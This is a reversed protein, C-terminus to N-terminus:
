GVEIRLTRPSRARALTRTYYAASKPSRASTRAHAILLAVIDADAWGAEAALTALRFDYGSQSHDRPAWERRWLQAFLRSTACLRALGAAPPSAAPDVVAVDIAVQHKVVVVDPLHACCDELDHFDVRPGSADELVVPTGYKTNLTGPVRLVRALDHTADLAYGDLQSRLYAQWRRVLREAHARAAASDIVLAEQLVWWPHFGGGSWVRVTPPIPLTTLLHRAADRSPLYSRRAGPKEVDVDAWVAPLAVVDEAGGRGRRRGVADAAQLGVHVYVDAGLRSLRFARRVAAEPDDPAVGYVRWRPPTTLVVAAHAPATTFITTFFTRAANVTDADTAITAATM